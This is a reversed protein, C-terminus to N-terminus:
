DYQRISEGVVHEALNEFGLVQGTSVDLLVMAGKESPDIGAVKM